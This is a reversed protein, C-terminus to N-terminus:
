DGQGSQESTGNAENMAKIAAAGTGPKPEGRGEQRALEEDSAEDFEGADGLDTETGDSPSGPPVTVLKPRAYRDKPPDKGEAQDVLDGFNCILADYGLLANLMGVMSRLHVERHADEMEFAKFAAKAGQPEVHCTKKITKMAEAVTQGQSSAESKAPKIDSFYLKKAHEFDMPKIEGTDDPEKRATRAM